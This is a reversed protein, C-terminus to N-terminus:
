RIECANGQDHRDISVAAAEHTDLHWMFCSNQCTGEAVHAISDLATVSVTRENVKNFTALFMSGPVATPPFKKKQNGLILDLDDPRPIFSVLDQGIGALVSALWAQVTSWSVRRIPQERALTLLSRSTYFSTQRTFM